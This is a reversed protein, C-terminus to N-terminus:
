RPPWLVPHSWGGGGLRPHHCEPDGGAPSISEIGGSSPRAPRQPGTCRAPSECGSTLPAPRPVLERPGSPTPTRGTERHRCLTGPGPVRVGHARACAIGPAEGLGANKWVLHGRGRGLCKREGGAGWVTRGTAKPTRLQVGTPKLRCGGGHFLIGGLRAVSDQDIPNERVDRGQPRCKGFGCM